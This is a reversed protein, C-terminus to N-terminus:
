PKQAAKPKLVANIARRRQRSKDELSMLETVTRTVPNSSIWQEPTKNGDMHLFHPTLTTKEFLSKVLDRSHTVIMLGQCKEPLKNAYEALWVGMAAAYDESLGLDPEDLMLWHNKERNESTGLAGKIAGLSVNGTSDESDGIPGFMFARHFGAETRYKMSVQIPEEDDNNAWSAMVRICFSKGSASGGVVVVVKSDTQGKTFLGELAGSTFFKGNAFDDLNNLLKNM